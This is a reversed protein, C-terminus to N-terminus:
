SHHIMKVMYPFLMSNIALYIRISFVYSETCASCNM